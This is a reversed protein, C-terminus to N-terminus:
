SHHKPRRFQAAPLRELMASLSAYTILTRAGAKRADLDRAALRRYIESRSLRSVRVADSITLMLPHDGHPPETAMGVASANHADV